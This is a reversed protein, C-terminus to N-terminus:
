ILQLIIRLNNKSTKLQCYYRYYELRERHFHGLLFLVGAAMESLPLCCQMLMTLRGKNKSLRNGHCDEVNGTQNEQWPFLIDIQFPIDVGFNNWFGSHWKRAMRLCLFETALIITPCM